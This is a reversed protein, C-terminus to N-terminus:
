HKFPEFADTIHIVKLRDMLPDICTPNRSIATAYAEEPSMNSLIMVPPNITKVIPAKRRRRLKMPQGDLFQNMWTIPRQGKYEEIVVFDIQDNEWDDYWEDELCMYYVRLYSTVYSVLRTKGIRPPGHLWLQKQRHCRPQGMNDKLWQELDKAGQDTEAIDISFTMDDIELKSEAAIRARKVRAVEEELLPRHMMVFGPYELELEKLTAGERIQTAIVDTKCSKKQFMADLDIGDKAYDGYKMIYEVCKKVNRVGQINPHQDWLDLGSPDMTTVKDKLAVIAHVHKSGSQHDEVSCVIWEVTWALTDSQCKEKLEELCDGSTKTWGRGLDSYTLFLRKKNLVLRSRRGERPRKVPTPSDM